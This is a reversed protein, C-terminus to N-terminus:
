FSINAGLVIKKSTPYSGKDIGLSSSSGSSATEPDFGPYDSFTFYDDLSVYARLSNVKIKKMLNSPFTYGLQIQKIKFYAGNFVTGTSSWFKNDTRISVASPITGSKNSESWANAHFYELSNNLPRDVRYVVAFIENGSVGTGFVTLDFNKYEANFTLGYTIDPIGCGIDTLDDANINGDGNMDRYIPSGDNSNVGDYIYGRMYWVPHGMEFATTATSSQITAGTIRSVSPDLYTVENHLYAVNGNLSYSFDGINGKWSTELELGRNEVSGANITTSNIGVEAVPSVSVLLGDTFKKYYDIGVSLRNNFFRMDVGFDTQISEEWTLSPNALGTPRSGFTATDDDMSFQYYSNNYSISTSYPYGSLINVNGNKGWSARLKLFSLINKDVGSMFPENTVTWGASVSPFYGWRAKKSLKSSDYADARFNAQLNYRNDYSWGIRGFYSLSASQGESGSITKNADAKTYSLYLFNDAYGQLPDEGSATGSVNSSRSEIYSMGVMASLNNKGLTKSYNAFNEWQYHYNGSNSSSLSYQKNNAMSNAYYPFSFSRSHSSGIRYGFRSTYVLGKFPTVNAYVTGRINMSDGWGRSKDRQIYPNGSDNEAIKSVAYFGNEDGLLTEGLDYHNKMDQPLDDYTPYYVPTLPDNVLTGMLVSGFESHESVSHTATKEISTNTGVTFWDNVKFDANLQMSLRKYTDKDGRVIGDDDVYNIALYFNSRDTSGQAGFTHRQTMSTGFTVDTWDTDTKGNYGAADLMSQSLVGQATKFDIFQAANMVEAAKALSTFTTQHNYFVRGNGKSSNGSKTTILVVGNGAQAGYIAASAADKLVEMSEIMDPDLYSISGVQLGDVILLPGISGSNSSYGRVRISSGAGPAASTNIVQVGSAKGQLAKTPDSTSRNILDDSRVSAIAGTVDSKRQVGYGIVVTEELFESDEQLVVNYVSESGVTISQTSYGICSVSLTSGTPVSLSFSGDLDTVTGVRTNGVLMVSAGIVPQGAGDLVKGTITKTQAFAVVQSFLAALVMLTLVCLKSKKLNRM